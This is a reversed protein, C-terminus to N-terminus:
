NKAPVPSKEARQRVTRLISEGSGIGRQSAELGRKGAEIRSAAYDISETAEDVRRSIGQATKLSQDLGTSIKDLRGDIRRQHEEIRQFSARIEDIRGRNNHIYSGLLYGAFLCLLLVVVVVSYIKKDSSM